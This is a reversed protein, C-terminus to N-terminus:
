VVLVFLASTQNWSCLFTSLYFCNCIDIFYEIFPLVEVRPLLGVVATM